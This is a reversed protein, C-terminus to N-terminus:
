IPSNGMIPCHKVVILMGCSRANAWAAGVMDAEYYIINIPSRWWTWRRGSWKQSSRRPWSRFVGTLSRHPRPHVGWIRNANYRLDIASGHSRDIQFAPTAAVPLPGTIPPRGPASGRHRATCDAGSTVSCIGQSVLMELSSGGNRVTAPELLGLATAVTAQPLITSGRGAPQVSTAWARRPLKKTRNIATEGDRGARARVRVTAATLLRAGCLRPVAAPWRTLPM